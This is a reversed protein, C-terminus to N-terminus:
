IAEQWNISATSWIGNRFTRRGADGVMQALISHKGWDVSVGIGYGHDPFVTVTNATRDFDEVNVLRDGVRLFAGDFVTSPVSPVTLTGDSVATAAAAATNEVAAWPGPLPLEFTESSGRLKALFWAIASQGDGGVFQPLEFDHIQATGVWYPEGTNLAYTSGTFASQHLFQQQRSQLSVETFVVSDPVTITM